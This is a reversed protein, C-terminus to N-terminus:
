REVTTVISEAAVGPEQLQLSFLIGLHGFSQTISVEVARRYGGRLAQQQFKDASQGPMCIANSVFLHLRQAVHAPGVRLDGLRHIVPRQEIHKHANSIGEIDMRGRHHVWLANWPRDSM